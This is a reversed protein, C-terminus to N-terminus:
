HNSFIILKDEPCLNLIIKNQNGAFVQMEGDPHICGIVISRNDKPSTNYINRILESATCSAPVKRLFSGVTKIYLEKSDGASEPDDYTLIDNYFNYLNDKEGIQTIMKSLYRNSIVINNINYSRVIDYNKPNLIEVVVDVRGPRFDPISHQLDTIIEQVYILYTLANADMEESSVVDDSLILISTDEEHDLVFERIAKCIADKDYVDAAVTGVVQPYEAYNGMRDLSKQDDIILLKLINPDEVNPDDYDWESSFDQFGSMISSTKSNHGLVIIYHRDMRYKPNVCIDSRPVQYPPIEEHLHDEDDALYYVTSVGDEDMCTLPLATANKYLAKNIYSDEQVKRDLKQSFFSAGKNSFLDGYVMNLEPMISFQSLIQGLVRNVMLPVICDEGQQGKHSMIQKVLRLTWEDETEVVIKQNDASDASGTLEAVQILTKITNTNGKDRKELRERAEYKCTSNQADKGLIIVTRAQKISIDNLKQTSFTDGERVIVTMRNKLTHRHYYLWGQLLNMGSKEIHEKLLRRELDLTNAFREQLEKEIAERGDNVLIVVVEPRKSYILDNVVESARSNWNLIVTHNSVRLRREGADSTEIFSSIYNTVYGIVAGTFTISGLVVTILCAIILAVSAEGVDAVVNSIAGADLIMSITYYVSAWFGQEHIQAPALASILFAATAIILINLLLIGLLIVRTPNKALMVSLRESLRQKIRFM